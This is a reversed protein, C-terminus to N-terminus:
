TISKSKAIQHTLFVNSKIVKNVFRKSKWKSGWKYVPMSVPFKSDGEYGDLNVRSGRVPCLLKFSDHTGAFYNIQQEINGIQSYLNDVQKEYQTRYRFDSFFIAVNQGILCFGTSGTFGTLYRINTLNTVYIGDLGQKQLELKLNEVRQKCWDM